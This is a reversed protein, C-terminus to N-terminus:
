GYPIPDIDTIKLSYAVLSGAGSGRGPGVPVKMKRAERIFDWVILFYGPFDMQIIIELEVNLRDLYEQRDYSEGKQDLNALREELGDLTTERLFDALSMGEPTDYDPLFIQGLKIRANCREAIAAATDVAGPLWEFAARMVREPKLWLGDPIEGEISSYSRGLGICTLAAHARADSAKLYHVYNSACLGIGLEGALGVVAENVQRNEKFGLDEVQLFYHEPGLLELWSTAHKVALDTDRRLIAQAVDSGLGGSLAILGQKYEGILERDVRPIDNHFGELWGHSICAILNRYGEDTEALLVMSSYRKDAPDTRDAVVSVECGFIPKVGAKDCAKQFEVAGYMNGRDTMAVADMGAEKVAAVLQNIRCAGDLFSYQTHVHLHAFAM